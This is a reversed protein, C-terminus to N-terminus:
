DILKFKYLEFKQKKDLKTNNRIHNDLIEIMEDLDKIKEVMSIKQM